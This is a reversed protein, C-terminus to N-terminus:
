EALRRELKKIAKDYFSADKIDLFLFISLPLNIGILYYIFWVERIGFYCLFSCIYSFIALYMKPKLNKTFHSKCVELENILERKEFITLSDFYTELNMNEPIANLITAQTKKM